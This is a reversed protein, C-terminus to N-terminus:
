CFYRSTYYKWPPEYEGVEIGRGMNRGGPREGEGRKEGYGKM